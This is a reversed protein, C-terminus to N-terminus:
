LNERLEALSRDGLRPVRWRLWGDVSGVALAHKAARSPTSFSMGDVTISGDAVVTAEIPRASRRRVVLKEGRRLVGAGILDAVSATGTTRAM